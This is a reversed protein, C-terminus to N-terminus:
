YKICKKRCLCVGVTLRTLTLSVGTDVAQTVQTVIFHFLPFNCMSFPTEGEVQLQTLFMGLYTHSILDPKALLSNLNFWQFVSFFLYNPNFKLHNGPIARADTTCLFLGVQEGLKRITLWHQQLNCIFADQYRCTLFVKHSPFTYVPYFVEFEWLFIIFIIRM